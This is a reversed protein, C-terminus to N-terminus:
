KSHIRTYSRASVTIFTIMTCHIDFSLATYVVFYDKINGVRFRKGEDLKVIKIWLSLCNLKYEKKENRQKFEEANRKYDQQNNKMKNISFQQIQVEKYLSYLHLLCLFYLYKKLYNLTPSPTLWHKQRLM